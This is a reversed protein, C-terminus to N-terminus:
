RTSTAGPPRKPTATPTAPCTRTPAAVPRWSRSGPGTTPTTPSAATNPPPASPSSTPRARLTPSRAIGRTAPPPSSSASGAPPRLPHSRDARPRRLRHRRPLVRPEHQDGTRRPQRRLARRRRDDLRRRRGPQRARARAHHARRLCPRDARLPQRDGRRDHRRRINRPRQPRIPYPSHDVFDYGKVFTDPYFDPSRRFGGRNAYAVGTDLVAVIVGRGGPAGDAALNAWAEARQRRVPGVFNWQLEQWGGEKGGPEGEDNPIFKGASHSACTTPEAWAVDHRRVLSRAPRASARRRPTLHLLRTHAADRRRHWPARGAARREHPRRATAGSAQRAGRGPRLHQQSQAHAPATGARWRPQGPARRSCGAPAHAHSIAPAPAAARPPADRCAVALAPPPSPPALATPDHHDSRRGPPGARVTASVRRSPDSTLSGEKGRSSYKMRSAKRSASRANSCSSTGIPATITRPPSTTAAACLSRSSRWSGVACASSSASRSAASAVRRAPAHQVRHQVHRELWARHAGSRDHQRADARPRRRRAIWLRARAPAHEVHQALRPQVVTRPPRPAAPSRTRLVTSRAEEGRRQPAQVNTAPRCLRAAIM